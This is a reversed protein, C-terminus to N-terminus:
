WVWPTQDRGSPYLSASLVTLLSILSLGDMMGGPRQPSRLKRLQHPIFALSASPLCMNSGLTLQVDTTGAGAAVGASGVSGM